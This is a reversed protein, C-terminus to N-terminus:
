VPQLRRQVAGSAPRQELQRDRGQALGQGRPVERALRLERGSALQDSRHGVGRVVLRGPLGVRDFSAHDTSGTTRQTVTDAGLDALPGLWAEFIPQAQMNEQAYIGRIKGGGNDLNFYVSHKAHDPLVEVEGEIKQLWRPLDKTEEDEVRPLKALHEEVYARAGLLGQEEGSWLAVRITRRPKM